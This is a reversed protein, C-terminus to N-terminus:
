TSQLLMYYTVGNILIPVRHTADPSGVTYVLQKLNIQDAAISGVTVATPLGIKPNGTYGDPYTVEVEDTTGELQRITFSNTGTKVIIGNGVLTLLASLLDRQDQSLDIALNMDGKTVVQEDSMGVDSTDDYLYPGTSGVYIRKTAM